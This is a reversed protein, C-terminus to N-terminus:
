PENAGDGPTNGSAGGYIKEIIADLGVDIPGGDAGTIETALREGYDKPMRKSLRWAAARWDHEIRKTEVVETTTVENIIPEGDAGLVPAGDATKQEVRVTVTKTRTTGADHPAAAMDILRISKKEWQAVAADVRDVFDIYLADVPEGELEIGAAEATNLQEEWATIAAEGRKRWGDLTGHGIGACAAAHRYTAGLQLARCIVTRRRPTLLTRRGVPKM